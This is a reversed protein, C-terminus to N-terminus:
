QRSLAKIIEFLAYAVLTLLFIMLITVLEITIGFVKFEDLIIGRVPSLFVGTVGYIWSILPVAANAGILKLIFRISLLVEIFITGVYLVQFIIKLVM